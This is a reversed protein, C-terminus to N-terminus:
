DVKFVGIKRTLADANEVLERASRAIEDAASLNEKAIATIRDAAHLVLDSGKRQEDASASVEQTVRWMAQALGQIERVAAVQRQVLSMVDRTINNMEAAADAVHRTGQGMERTGQAMDATLGKMQGMAARMKRGDLGQERVASAVEHGTRDMEAMARSVVASAEAQQSALQALGRALEHGAGVRGLISQLAERAQDARKMGDQTEVEGRGASARANETKEQVLRVVGGIEKAATVSREALKRVEEAVVSFGRGAEGARAAEIAANLALLNTQDAIEEIVELIRRIDRSHSDLDRMFGATEHIGAVIRGMAELASGVATGGGRVEELARASLDQLEAVHGRIRAGTEVLGEVVRAADNMSQILGDARGATAELSTAMQEITDASATIGEQLEQSRSAFSQVARAMQESTASSEGIAGALADFRSSVEGSAGEMRVIASTTAEVSRALSQTGSAVSRIQGAIEAMSSSTNEAEQLQEQVGTRVRQSVQSYRESAGALTTGSLRVDVVVEKMHTAMRNVSRALQGVEDETDVSLQRTLDGEAVDAVTRAVAAVRRAVRHGAYFSLSSTAAFAILGVIGLRLLARRYAAQAEQYTRVLTLRADNGILLRTAVVDVGSVTLTDIQNPPVAARAVEAVDLGGSLTSGHVRGGAELVAEVGSQQTLAHLFSPGLPNAAVLFGVPRTAAVVPRAVAVHVVGNILAPQPAGAETLEALAAPPALGRPSSARLRGDAGVLYLGESGVAARQDDAVGQLAASSAASDDMAAQLQPAQAVAGTAADLAAGEQTLLASVTLLARKIDTELGERFDTTLSVAVAGLSGAIAALVSLTTVVSIRTALRL